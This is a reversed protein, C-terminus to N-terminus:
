EHKLVQATNVRNLQILKIMITGAILGFIIGIAVIFPRISLQIQYNFNQLWEEVLYWTLPIAILCAITIIKLFKTSLLVGLDLNSIGLVKRIAMERTRENVEFTVIGFLGLVSLILAIYTYFSIIKQSRKEQHYLAAFKDDLFEIQFNISPYVQKLTHEIEHVTATINETAIKILLNDPKFQAGLVMVCPEIPHHLSKYNFDKVVATIARRGGPGFPSFLNGVAKEWGTVRLASENLVYALNQEKDHELQELTGEMLDLNLTSFLDVDCSIINMSVDEQQSEWWVSQHWNVLGPHFGTGSASIVDPIRALEKKLLPLDEQWRPEYLPINVVGEQELGIDKSLLYNIQARVFLVSSLLVMAIIFQTGLLLNRMPNKGSATKVGGKLAEIPQVKIIYYSIYWGSALAMLLILGTLILWLQLNLIPLEIQTDFLHNIRDLLLFKVALYGLVSSLTVLLLSEGIFQMVLQGRGAGITRRMGVERLRKSSGAVSLNIYNIVSVLLIAFAALGYIIISNPDTSPKLNGRNDQFHIDSIPQLNIEELTFTNEENLIIQLDQIKREADKERALPHLLVYAFYNFQGWNGDLSTNPLMTELNLFSIIFDMELHGNESFDDFVGGVTFEFTDNIRLVKGIPDVAGFIQMAKSESLVITKVDSLAYANGRVYHIDFFDNVSPDALFFDKEYFSQNGYSVATRSSKDLNILRTFDQVEPVESQVKVPLPASVRVWGTGSAVDGTVLRFIRQAKSFHRDHTYEYIYHQYSILFCGIGVALGLINVLSFMPRRWANRLASRLYSKLM